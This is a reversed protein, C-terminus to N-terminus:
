SHMIMLKEGGTLPNAMKRVNQSLIMIKTSNQHKTIIYKGVGM